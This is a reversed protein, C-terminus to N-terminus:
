CQDKLLPSGCFGSKVSNKPGGSIKRRSAKVSIAGLRCGWKLEKATEYPGFYKEDGNDLQIFFQYGYATSTAGPDYGVMINTEGDVTKSYM